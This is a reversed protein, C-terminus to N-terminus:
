KRRCSQNLNLVKYMTFNDVLNVM